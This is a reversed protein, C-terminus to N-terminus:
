SKSNYCSMLFKRAPKEVFRTLFYAVFVSVAFALFISLWPSYGNEYGGRIILYGLNQHILYFSYSITGFFVIVRSTLFKLNGNVALLVLLSFCLSVVFVHQPFFNGLILVTSALTVFTLISSSKNSYRYLCIGLAFLPLWRILLLEHALLPLEIVEYWVFINLVYTALIPWEIHKIIKTLMLVLIWLYFTLEVRLTWYVGDVHAIDFYGHFMLLNGLFESFSRERGPLGVLAVVVFTFIVAAWYVPYLRTFRSVVFDLPKKIREVSMFIVFGSIIFFVEVGIRGHQFWEVPLGEHGYIEDYRKYYHYLLVSLSAIGRFADLELIRRKAM